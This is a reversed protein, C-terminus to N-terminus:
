IGLLKLPSPPELDIKEGINKKISKKKLSQILLMYFIFCFLVGREAQKKVIAPEINRSKRFVPIKLVKTFDSILSDTSLIKDDSNCM